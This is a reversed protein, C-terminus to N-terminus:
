QQDKPTYEMCWHATLTGPQRTKMKSVLVGDVVDLVTVVVPPLRRCVGSDASVRDWAFCTGCARKM